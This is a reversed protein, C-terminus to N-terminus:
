RLHDHCNNCNIDPVSYADCCFQDWTLILFHGPCNSHNELEPCSAGAIAPTAHFMKWLGQVQRRQKFNNFINISKSNFTMARCDRNAGTKLKYLLM